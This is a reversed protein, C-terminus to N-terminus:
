YQRTGGLHEYEKPLVKTADAQLKTFIFLLKSSAETTSPRSFAAKKLVM